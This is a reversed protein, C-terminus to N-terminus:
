KYKRMLKEIDAKSDVWEESYGCECCLYRSVPVVGRLAGAQISNGSSGITGPIMIINESNCKPCKKNNKM